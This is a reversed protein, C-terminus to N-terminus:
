ARGGERGAGEGGAGRGDAAGYGFRGGGLTRDHPRKLVLNGSDRLSDPMVHGFPLAVRVTRGLRVAANPHAGLRDLRAAVRGDTLRDTQGRLREDDAACDALLQQM